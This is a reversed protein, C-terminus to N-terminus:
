IQRPKFEVSVEEHNCSAGEWMREELAQSIHVNRPGRCLVRPKYSPEWRPTSGPEKLQHQAVSLM